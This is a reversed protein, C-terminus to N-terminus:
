PARNRRTGDLMRAWAAAVLSETLRRGPGELRARHTAPIVVVDLEVIGRVFAPSIADTQPLGPLVEPSVTDAVLSTALM